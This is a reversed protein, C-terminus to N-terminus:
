YLDARTPLDGEFMGWSAPAKEAADTIEAWPEQPRAARLLWFPDENFRAYDACLAELRAEQAPSLGAPSATARRALQKILNYCLSAQGAAVLSPLQWRADFWLTTPMSFALCAVHDLAESPARLTPLPPKATKSPALSYVLNSVRAETGGAQGYLREYGLARIRKMFISTTLTLVSTARLRLMQKLQGLTLRGLLGWAASRLVPFQPLVDERLATRLSSILWLAALTVGGPVVYLFFLRPYDRAPEFELDGALVWGLYALSAGLLVTILQALLDLTKLRLGGNSSPAPMDYLDVSPQDVDSIIVLDVDARSRGDALLMSHLGQNDYVGGDMLPVPGTPDADDGGAEPPFERRVADPVDDGRWHFDYPFSIPEFGGPFCSSAAVIDALRIDRADDLSIHNYYNGILGNGDESRQFRFAIGSRFDTANFIVNDVPADLVTDFYFPEGAQPGDRRVFLKEAYVEAMAVILTERGSPVRSAGDTLRELGDRVLDTDELDEYYADFFAAFGRGEARSLAWRAGTFTGGSVTSLTRIADVAGCRELYALAGLHFAAARYGGGSLCLGIRSGIPAPDVPGHGEEDHTKPADVAQSDATADSM